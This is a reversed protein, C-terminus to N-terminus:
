LGAYVKEVHANLFNERSTRTRGRIAAVAEAQAPQRLPKRPAREILGDSLAWFAGYRRRDESFDGPAKPESALWEDIISPPHGGARLVTSLAERPADATSM